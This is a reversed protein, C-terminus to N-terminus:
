CHYGFKVFEVKSGNFMQELTKIQLELSDVGVRHNIIAFYREGGGYDGGGEEISYLAEKDSFLEDIGQSIWEDYEEEYCEDKVLGRSLLLEEVLPQSVEFGYGAIVGIDVGM